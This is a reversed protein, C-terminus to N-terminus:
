AYQELWRYFWDSSGAVEHSVATGKARGTQLLELMRQPTCAEIPAHKLLSADNTVLYNAKARQCAALVLDDELDDHEDRFRCALWIDADVAPVANAQERMSAVAEWAFHKIAIADSETLPRSKRIWAKNDSRVRQYVDLLAHSPYCLSADQRRAEKTLADVTARQPRCPLFLDLWM